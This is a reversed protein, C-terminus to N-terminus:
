ARFLLMVHQVLTAYQNALFRGIFPLSVMVCLLGVMMKIPMGVVFINMQPMVKAVFGLAIDTMLLIGMVPLAMMIAIVFLESAMVMFRETLLGINSFATGLPVLEFSRGVAVILAHHINLTLFVWIGFMLFFQNMASNPTHTQPDLMGAVSIGMQIGMWDGAMRIGAFVLSAAFGIMLGIIFEQIALVIFPILDHPPHWAPAGAHLLFFLLSVALAFGVKIQLPVGVDSFFPATIMMGSLRTVVLVFTIVTPVTLLTLDM